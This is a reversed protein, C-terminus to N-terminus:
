MRVVRPAYGTSYPGSSANGIPPAFTTRDLGSSWTVSIPAPTVRCLQRAAASWSAPSPMRARTTSRYETLGISM